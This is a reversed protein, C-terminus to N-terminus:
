SLLAFDYGIVHGGVWGFFRLDHQDIEIVKNNHCYTVVRLIKANPKTAKM